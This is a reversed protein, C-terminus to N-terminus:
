NQKDSKCPVSKSRKHSDHFYVNDTGAIDGKALWSNFKNLWGEYKM